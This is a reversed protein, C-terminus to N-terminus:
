RNRVAGAGALLRLVGSWEDGRFRDPRERAYDMATKGSADRANVDAGAALLIPLTKLNVKPITHMVALIVATRGERDGASVDAGRKLLGSLLVDPSGDDANLLAAELLLTRGYGNRAEISAGAAILDDLIALQNSLIRPLDEAYYSLPRSFFRFTPPGTEGVPAHPDGGARLLTQIVGRRGAAVAHMLPTSGLEDRGNPDAGAALAQEVRPLCGARIDYIFAEAGSAPAPRPEPFLENVCADARVGASILGDILGAVRDVVAAPTPRGAEAGPVATGGRRADAVVSVVVNAKSYDRWATRLPSPTMAAYAMSRNRELAKVAAGGSAHVSLGVCVTYGEGELEGRLSPEPSLNGTFPEAIKWTPEHAKVAATLRDSLTADGQAFVPRLLGALLFM